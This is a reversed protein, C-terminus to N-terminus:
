CTSGSSAWCCCSIWAYTLPVLPGSYLCHMTLCSQLTIYGLVTIKSYWFVIYCFFDSVISGVKSKRNFIMQISYKSPSSGGSTPAHTRDHLICWPPISSHPKAQKIASVRVLATRQHGPCTCTAGVVMLMCIARIRM